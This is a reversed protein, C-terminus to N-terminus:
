FTMPTAFDPCTMMYYGVVTSHAPISADKASTQHPSSAMNIYRIEDKTQLLTTVM